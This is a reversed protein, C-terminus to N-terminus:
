SQHSVQKHYHDYLMRMTERAAAEDYPDDWPHELDPPKSRDASGPREASGPIGRAPPAAAQESRAPHMDKDPGLDLMRREEAAGQSSERMQHSVPYGLGTEQWLKWEAELGQLACMRPGLLGLSLWASPQLDPSSDVGDPCCLHLAHKRCQLLTACLLLSPSVRAPHHELPTGKRWAAAMDPPMVYEGGGYATLVKQVQSVFTSVSTAHITGCQTHM